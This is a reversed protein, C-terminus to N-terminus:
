SVLLLKGGRRRNHSSTDLIPTASVQVVLAKLTTNIGNCDVEVGRKTEIFAVSNGHCFRATGGKDETIFDFM